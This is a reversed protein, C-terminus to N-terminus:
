RSTLPYNGVTSGNATLVWGSKEERVKGQSELRQLSHHVSSESRDAERAISALSAQTISVAKGPNRLRAEKNAAHLVSLIKADYKEICWRYLSTM